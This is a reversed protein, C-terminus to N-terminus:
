FERAEWACFPRHDHVSSVFRGGVAGDMFNGVDITTPKVGHESDGGDGFVDSSVVAMSGPKAPSAKLHTLGSTLSGSGEELLPESTERLDPSPGVHLGHNEM